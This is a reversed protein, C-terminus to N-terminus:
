RLHRGGDVFITDGTVFEAELLYTVAQAVEAPRGTRQLPAAEALREMHEPDADGPPLIAGPAVANVRTGPALEAALTETLDALTRKSTIYPVHDPDRSRIRTDLLNVVATEETREAVRRTLDFAAWAHLNMMRDFDDLTAEALTTEPFSSANNVLVNPTRGIADEARDVLRARDDPDALDARATGARVDQERLEVALQHAEDKSTRYHVVVDHDNRALHRAIARGIRKAAGTVLAADQQAQPM